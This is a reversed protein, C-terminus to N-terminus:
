RCYLGIASTDAPDGSVGLLPIQTEGYHIYTVTINPKAPPQRDHLIAHVAQSPASLNPPNGGCPADEARVVYWYQKEYTASHDVWSTGTTVTMTVWQSAAAPNLGPWAAEPSDSRYLIYHAADSVADWKLSITGALHNATATLGQPAAPPITDPPTVAIAKSFQDRQAPDSWDRPHGLLDRPAIRYYYTQCAELEPDNDQYFYDYQQYPHDGPLTNNPEYSPSPVVPRDEGDQITIREFPGNINKSRFVDYSTIGLPDPPDAVDSPLDWRLFVRSDAKRNQQARAWDPSGQLSEDLVQVAQLGTPAPLPTLGEYSVSVEGVRYEIEGPLLATVRYSYAQGLQAGADLYGTGRVLALQYHQDALWLDAAANDDLFAHLKAITSVDYTSQLWSWLSDGLLAIATQENSVRQATALLTGDRYVKYATPHPYCSPWRWRLFVGKDDSAWGLTPPDVEGRCTTHLATHLSLPLYSRYSAAPAGFEGTVPTPSPSVGPGQAQSLGMGISLGLLLITIILLFRWPIDYKTKM